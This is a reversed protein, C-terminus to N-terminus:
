QGAGLGVKPHRGPRRMSSIPWITTAPGGSGAAQQHSLERVGACENRYEHDLIAQHAKSDLKSSRARLATQKIARMVAGFAVVIEKRVEGKHIFDSGRAALDADLAETMNDGAKGRLRSTYNDLAHWREHGLSGAGNMKTLNIVM